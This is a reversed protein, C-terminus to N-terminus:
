IVRIAGDPGILGRYISDVDLRVDISSLHQTQGPGADEGLTWIGETKIFREIKPEGQSAVLVYEVFSPCSRYHAFKKGRDYGETSDSLVEVILVPNTITNNDEPDRALPGCVVVIDPYAAKGSPTHIRLNEIFARCTNKLQTGIAIHVASAIAAHEPTGGAMAFVEGAEYEHRLETSEEFAIYEKFSMPMPSAATM